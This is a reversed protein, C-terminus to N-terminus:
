FQGLFEIFYHYLNGGFLYLLFLLIWWIATALVNCLRVAAQDLDCGIYALTSKPLFVITEIWFLPNFADHWRKSYVGVADDFKGYMAAALQPNKTPFNTFVSAAHSVLQLPNIVQSVPIRSDEIGARKILEIIESRREEFGDCSSSAWTLYNQRYKKCKLYAVYNTTFKFFVIFAFLVIIKINM